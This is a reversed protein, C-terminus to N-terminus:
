GSSLFLFFHKGPGGLPKFWCNRPEEEWTGLSPGPATPAPHAAPCRHPCSDWRARRTEGPRPPAGAWPMPGTHAASLGAWTGGAAGGAFGREPILRLQQCPPRQALTAAGALPFAPLPSPHLRPRLQPRPPRRCPRLPPSPSLRQSSPALALNLLLRLVLSASRPCAPSLASSPHPRPLGVREQEGPQHSSTPTRGPSPHSFSCVPHFNLNENGGPQSRPSPCRCCRPPPSLQPLDAPGGHAPGDLGHSGHRLTPTTPGASIWARLGTSAGPGQPGSPAGPAGRAPREQVRSGPRRRQVGPQGVGVGRFVSVATHLDPDEQFSSVVPTVAALGAGKGDWREGNTGRGLTLTLRPVVRPALVPPPLLWLGERRPPGSTLGAPSRDGGAGPRPAALWATSETPWTTM